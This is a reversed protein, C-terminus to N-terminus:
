QLYFAKETDINHYDWKNILWVLLILRPTVETVVPSYNKTFDVGPNQTYRRAVIRAM